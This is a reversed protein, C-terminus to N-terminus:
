AQRSFHKDELSARSGRREDLTKGQSKHEEYAREDAKLRTVKM